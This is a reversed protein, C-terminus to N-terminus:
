KLVFVGVPCWYNIIFTIANFGIENHMVYRWRWIGLRFGCLLLVFTVILREESNDNSLSCLLSGLNPM